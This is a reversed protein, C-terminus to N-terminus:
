ELKSSPWGKGYFFAVQEEHIRIFKEAGGFFAVVNSSDIFYNDNHIAANYSSYEHQKFDIVIRHKQANANSYIIAQQLHGDDTIQIRKFPKQFFGGKRDYKNNLYNAYSVLFSNMQREIMEDFIAYPVNPSDGTSPPEGWHM